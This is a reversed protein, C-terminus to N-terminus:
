KTPFVRQGYPALGMVKGAESAEGFIQQAAASFMGGLSGFSPMEGDRMVLWAGRDVAHKELPTVTTGAAHYLSITEWCDTSSDKLVKLEERTFDAVPSGAGDVILVASDAFGSTAFVSIAHGYHHPITITPTRHTLVNLFPDSSIDHIKDTARGQISLVILDLASPDIGAYNLCYAVARSPGAGRIRHRKFRSLREEQIAVVIEDGRLLCASGNHSASIGLIWPPNL